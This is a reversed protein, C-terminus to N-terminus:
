EDWTVVDPHYQLIMELKQVPGINYHIARAPWDCGGTICKGEGHQLGFRFRPIGRLIDLPGNSGLQHGCKYCKENFPLFHQFYHDLADIEVQPVFPHEPTPTFKLFERWDCHSFNM